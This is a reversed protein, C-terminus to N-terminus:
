EGKLKRIAAAVARAYHNGSAYYGRPEDFADAVQAAEELAERRVAEILSLDDDGPLPCAGERGTPPEVDDINLSNDMASVYVCKGGGLYRAPATCKARCLDGRKM